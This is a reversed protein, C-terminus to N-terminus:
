FIKEMCQINVENRKELKLPNRVADCNKRVQKKKWPRIHIKNDMKRKMCVKSDFYKVKWERCDKIESENKQSQKELRKLMYSDSKGM